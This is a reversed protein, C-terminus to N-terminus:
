PEPGLKRFLGGQGRLHTPTPTPSPLAPSGELGCESDMQEDGPKSLFALRTARNSTHHTLLVSAELEVGLVVSAPCSGACWGDWVQSISDLPDSAKLTM